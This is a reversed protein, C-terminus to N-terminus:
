EPVALQLKRKQRADGLLRASLTRLADAQEYLDLSELRHSANDLQWAVKRLALIEESPLRPAPHKKSTGTSHDQSNPDMGFDAAVISGGLQEQIDAIERAMESMDAPSEGQDGTVLAVCFMAVLSTAGLIRIGLAYARAM